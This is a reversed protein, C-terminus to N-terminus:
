LFTYDQESSEQSEQEPLISANRPKRATSEVCKKYYARKVDIAPEEMSYVSKRKYMSNIKLHNGITYIRDKVEEIPLFGETSNGDKDVDALLLMNNVATKTDMEPIEGNKLAKEFSRIAKMKTKRHQETQFTNCGDAKGEPSKSYLELSHALKTYDGFRAALNTVNHLRIKQFYCRNAAEVQFPTFRSLLSEDELMPPTPENYIFKDRSLKIASELMGDVLFATAQRPDFNTALLNYTMRGIEAKHALDYQSVLFEPTLGAKNIADAHKDMMWLVKDAEQIPKLIRPLPQTLKNLDFRLLDLVPNHTRLAHVEAPLKITFGRDRTALPNRLNFIDALISFISHDSQHSGGIVVRQGDIVLYDKAWELVKKQANYDALTGQTTIRIVEKGQKTKIKYAHFCLSTNHPLTKGDATIDARFKKIELSEETFVQRNNIWTKNRILSTQTRLLKNTKVPEQQQVVEGSAQQLASIRNSKRSQRRFSGRLRELLLKGKPINEQSEPQSEDTQVSPQNQLASLEWRKKNNEIFIFSSSEDRLIKAKVLGAKKKISAWFLKPSSSVKHSASATIDTVHSHLQRPHREPSPSYRDREPSQSPSYRYDIGVNRGMRIAAFCPGPQRQVQAISTCNSRLSCLSRSRTFAIAAGAFLLAGYVFHFIHIQLAASSKKCNEALEDEDRYRRIKVLHAAILSSNDSLVDYFPTLSQLKFVQDVALHALDRDIGVLDLCRLVDEPYAHSTFYQCTVWPKDKDSSWIIQNGTLGQIENKLQWQFGKRITKQHTKDWGKARVMDFLPQDFLLFLWLFHRSVTLSMETDKSLIEYVASAVLSPFPWNKVDKFLQQTSTIKAEVLNDIEDENLGLGDYEQDFGLTHSFFDDNLCDASSKQTPAVRVLGEAVDVDSPWAYAGKPGFEQDYNKNM